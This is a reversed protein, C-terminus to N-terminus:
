RRRLRAVYFGDLGDVPLLYRGHRRQVSPLATDVPESAFGPHRRTFDAVQAEGEAEILSCVAYVLVGGPATLSAAVDLMARQVEAARAVQDPTLRLKIEPHGRLTGTGTCPADLLVRPAPQLALPASLDASVHEARLGLRSLNAAAARAKDPDLDVAVVEAGSRALLATKIGAGAALDLVRLGAVDGLASVPVTASPNQPQVAGERYASLRGLPRAPRVRLTHPLPGPAVECGEARLRAEADPRFASLWLPEPALMGEAAARAAPEGLCREFAELLWPALCLRTPRDLETAPDVRRLVANVLGALRPATAKVVEVYGDVVAHRPTGRVALEFAGARLAARVGNPLRDAARLRPALVADLAPLRRVTGYSVDTALARDAGTLRSGDLARSLTPALYAGGTVRRVVEVALARAPEPSDSGERADPSGGAEAPGRGPPPDRRSM